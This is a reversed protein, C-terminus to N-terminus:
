APPRSPSPRRRAATAPPLPGEATAAGATPRTAELTQDIVPWRYMPHADLRNAQGQWLPQTLWDGPLPGRPTPHGCSSCCSPSRASPAAPSTRDRDLGLWAALDAAAVPRPQLQWGQLAAAYALAGSAHGADLLCYRLAREGYKWAERWAISSLAIFVRPPSQTPAPRPLAARLELAHEHPAYHHVGDALGPV